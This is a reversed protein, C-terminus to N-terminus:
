AYILKNMFAFQYATVNFSFLNLLRIQTWVTKLFSMWTWLCIFFRVVITTIPLKLTLFLWGIKINSVTNHWIKRSCEPNLGMKWVKAFLTQSKGYGSGRFIWCRCVSLLKRIKKKKLFYANDFSLFFYSFYELHRGSFNKGQTGLTLEIINQQIDAQWRSLHTTRLWLYSSIRTINKDCFVYATPVWYFPRLWLKRIKESFISKWMEHLNVRIPVIQMFHSFRNESFFLHNEPSFLFFFFIDTQWRSFKAWLNTFIFSGVFRLDSIRNEDFKIIKAKDELHVWYDYGTIMYRQFSTTGVDNPKFSYPLYLLCQKLFLKFM